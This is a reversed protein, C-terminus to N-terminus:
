DDDEEEFIDDQDDDAESSAEEEVGGQGGEDDDDADDEPVTWPRAGRAILSAPVGAMGAASAREHLEQASIAVCPLTVAHRVRARWRRRQSRYRWLVQAGEIAFEADDEEGPAENDGDSEEEGHAATAQKSEAAGGRTPSSPGEQSGESDGDEGDSWGDPRADDEMDGFELEDDSAQEGEPAGAAAAAAGGAAAKREAAAVLRARRAAARKSAAEGRQLAYMHGELALLLAAQAAGTVAAATAARWSDLSMAEQPTAARGAACLGHEERVAPVQTETPVDSGEAPFQELFVRIPAATDLTEGRLWRSPPDVRKAFSECLTLLQSRVAISQAVAAPVLDLPHEANVTNRDALALDAQGSQATNGGGRAFATSTESLRETAAVAAGRRPRKTRGGSAETEEEADALERALAADRAEEIISQRSRKVGGFALDSGGEVEDGAKREPVPAGVLEELFKEPLGREHLTAEIHQRKYAATWLTEAITKLHLELCEFLAREHVGRKDLSKLLAEVGEVTDIFGWQSDTHVPDNAALVVQALVADAAASRRLEAAVAEPAFRAGRRSKKGDDNGDVGANAANAPPDQPPKLGEEGLKALAAQQAVAVAAAARAANLKVREVYIRTPDAHFRWYKSGHRDSGMLEASTAVRNLKVAYKAAIRFCKFAAAEEVARRDADGRLQSLAIAAATMPADMRKKKGRGEEFGCGSDRAATMAAQLREMDKAAAAAALEKEIDSRLSAVAAGQMLASSADTANSSSAAASGGKSEKKVWGMAQLKEKMAAEREKRKELRRACAEQDKKIITNARKEETTRKRNIADQRAMRAKITAAVSKTGSAADVLLQLIELRERLPLAFYETHKLSKVAAVATPSGLEQLELGEPTHLLVLRLVEPWTLPSLLALTPALAGTDGATAGFLFDEEDDDADGGGADDQPGEMQELLLRLLAMHVRTVLRHGRWAESSFATILDELEVSQLSTTLKAVTDDSVGVLWPNVRSLMEDESPASANSSDHSGAAALRRVSRTASGPRPKPGRGDSRLPTALADGAGAVVADEPALVAAAAEIAHEDTPVAAHALVMHDGCATTSGDLLDASSFSRVFEWVQLLMGYQTDDPMGHARCLPPPPHLGAGMDRYVHQDIYDQTYAPEYQLTSDPVPYAKVRKSLLRDASKDVKSAVNNRVHELTQYARKDQLAAPLTENKVAELVSESTWGYITRRKRPSTSKKSSKAQPSSM